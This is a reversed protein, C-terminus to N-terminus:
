PSSTPATTTVVDNCVCNTADWDNCTTSNGDNDIPNPCLSDEFNEIVCTCSLSNWKMPQGLINKGCGNIPPLCKEPPVTTMFEYVNM